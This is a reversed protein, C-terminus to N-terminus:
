VVLPANVRIAAACLEAWTTADISIGDRQRERRTAREPDGAV